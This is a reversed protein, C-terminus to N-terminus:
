YWRTMPLDNNVDNTFLIQSLDIIGNQFTAACACLYLEWMRAFKEDFMEVVEARHAQFNKNWELLTKNYHRRLSEVDITYFRMDGAIQIVERLSPIVGGPFIYKKIWADGPHEQLASIYHLLFLGGPKLVSKVCSMFEEYNGRGVHELM